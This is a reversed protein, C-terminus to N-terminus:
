YENQIVRCALPRGVVRNTGGYLDRYCLCKWYLRTHHVKPVEHLLRALLAIRVTVCGGHAKQVKYYKSGWVM